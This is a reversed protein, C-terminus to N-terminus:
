SEVLCTRKVLDCIFDVTGEIGLISSDISFDYSSAHGWIKNTYYNYYAARSKDSKILLERAKESSISQREIINKMRREEDKCHIFFSLCNPNDRLIYDACRGVLVCSEKDALKRITDSQLQFLRENSLIDNYPTYIGMLSFGTSFAYALGRSTKEDAKEFVEACLGSEKAALAILESDYYSIKLREALQKGIARGGSGFQRGITLIIKKGM